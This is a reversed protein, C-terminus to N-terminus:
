TLDTLLLGAAAKQFEDGVSTAVADAMGLDVAETASLYLNGALYTCESACRLSAILFL